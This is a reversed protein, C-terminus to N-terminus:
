QDGEQKKNEVAPKGTPKPSASRSAARNRKDIEILSEAARQDLPSATNDKLLAKARKIEDASPALSTRPKVPKGDEGIEVSNLSDGIGSKPHFQTKGTVNHRYYAM